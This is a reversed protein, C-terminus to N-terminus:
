GVTAGYGTEWSRTNVLLYSLGCWVGTMVAFTFAYTTIAGVHVLEHCVPTPVRLEVSKVFDKVKPRYAQMHLATM